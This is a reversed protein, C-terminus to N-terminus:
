RLADSLAKATACSSLGGDLAIEAGSLFPCEESLLFVMLAAVEEATGVRGLPTLAENAGRFAAPASATMPTEIYGPHV